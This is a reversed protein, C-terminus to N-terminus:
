YWVFKNKYNRRTIKFFERYFHSTNVLIFSFTCVVIKAFKTM